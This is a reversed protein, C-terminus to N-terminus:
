PTPGRDLPPNGGPPGLRSEIVRQAIGSGTIGLCAFAVVVLTVDSEERQVTQWLLIFAGLIFALTDRVFPWRRGAQPAPSPYHAM